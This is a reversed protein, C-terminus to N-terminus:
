KDTMWEPEIVVRRTSFARWLGVHVEAHRLAKSAPGLCREAEARWYEANSTARVSTAIWQDLGYTYASMVVVGVLLSAAVMLWGLTTRHITITPGDM